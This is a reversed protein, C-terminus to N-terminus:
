KASLSYQALAKLEADSVAIRPHGSGNKLMAAIKQAARRDAQYKASIEKFSPGAKRTDAAHCNMCGNAAALSAGDLTAASISQHPLAGLLLIM